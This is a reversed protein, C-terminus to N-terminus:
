GRSLQTSTKVGGKKLGGKDSATMQGTEHHHSHRGPAGLEQLASPQPLSSSRSLLYPRLQSPVARGMFGLFAVAQMHGPLILFPSPFIFSLEWAGRAQSSSARPLLLSFCMDSGAHAGHLCVQQPHFPRHFTLLWMAARAVPQSWAWCRQPLLM